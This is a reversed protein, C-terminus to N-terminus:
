EINLTILFSNLISKFLAFYKAPCEKPSYEAKAQAPYRSKLSVILIKLFLPSAICFETGFPLLLFTATNPDFLSLLFFKSLFYSLSETWIAM